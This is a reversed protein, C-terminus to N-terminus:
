TFMRIPDRQDLPRSKRLAEDWTRLLKRNLGEINLVSTLRWGKLKSLKMHFNCSFGKSPFQPKSTSLESEGM